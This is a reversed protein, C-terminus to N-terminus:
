LLGNFPVYQEIHKM